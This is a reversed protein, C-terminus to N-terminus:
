SFISKLAWLKLSGKVSFLINSRCKWHVMWQFYVGTCLTETFGESFIAKVTKAM